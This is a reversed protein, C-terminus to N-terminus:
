GAPQLDRGSNTRCLYLVAVLLLGLRILQQVAGTLFVLEGVTMQGREVLSFPYFAPRGQLVRDILVREGQGLLASALPWVLIAVGLWVFGIDRTRVYKRILVVALALYLVISFSPVLSPLPM